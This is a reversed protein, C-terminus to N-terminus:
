NEKKKKKGSLIKEHGLLSKVFHLIKGEPEKARVGKRVREM